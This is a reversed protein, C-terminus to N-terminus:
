ASDEPFHRAFDAVVQLGDVPYASLARPAAQRKRWLKPIDEFYPESRSVGVVYCGAKEGVHVVPVLLAVSPGFVANRIGFWRIREVPRAFDLLFSCESQEASTKSVGVDHPTDPFCFLNLPM